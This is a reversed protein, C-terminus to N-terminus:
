KEHHDDVKIIVLKEFIINLVSLLSVLYYSKATSREENNKFVPVMSSVKGSDPLCSIKLCM